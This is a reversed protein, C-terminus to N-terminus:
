QGAEQRQARMLTKSIDRLSMGRADISKVPGLAGAVQRALTADDTFATDIFQLGHGVRQVALWTVPLTAAVRSADDLVVGVDRFRASLTEMPEQFLLRGKDLFAVDTACGEIEALEHSSIIITMEGAQALLSEMVEDRVLPDLGSLPEDLILLLPKFPLAAALVTKLRTGHSLKGLKRAAPLDFRRRLDVELATDWTPYLPRLYDFYQAVTLGDPLKQNESVYGIRAMDGASLDRSNVGLVQATGSSPQVLNVLMRLTTTKGAGNAGILALAAGEPVSLSIDHVADHKSYRKSLHQTEVIV